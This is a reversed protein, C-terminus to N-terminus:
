GFNEVGGPDPVLFQVQSTLTMAQNTALPATVERVPRPTKPDSM